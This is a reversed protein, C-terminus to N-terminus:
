PLQRAQVVASYAVILRKGSLVIDLHSVLQNMSVSRLLAMGTVSSVMMEM